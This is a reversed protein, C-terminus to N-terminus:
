PDLAREVLHDMDIEVRGVEFEDPDAVVSDVRQLLRLREVDQDGGADVRDGFSAGSPCAGGPGANLLHMVVVLAANM